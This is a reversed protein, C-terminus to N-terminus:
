AGSPGPAPSCLSLMFRPSTLSAGKSAVAFTNVSRATGATLRGMWVSLITARRQDPPESREPWWSPSSQRSTSSASQGSSASRRTIIRSTLAISRAWCRAATYVPLNIVSECGLSKILEHDPFVKAIDDITNAVFARREGHVIDFWENRHTPKTGSAPYNEPDSTYARRALGAKMDSLMVTFLRAGIVERVLAAARGM